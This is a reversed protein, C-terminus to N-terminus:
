RAAATKQTAEDEDSESGETTDSTEVKEVDVEPEKPKAQKATKEDADDENPASSRVQDGWEKVLDRQEKQLQKLKMDNAVTLYAYVIPPSAYYFIWGVAACGFMILWNTPQSLIELSQQWTNDAWIDMGVMMAGAFNMYGVTRAAYRQPRGDVIYAVFTPIMGALAVILFPHMFYVILPALVWAFGQLAKSKQAKQPPATKKTPKKAM